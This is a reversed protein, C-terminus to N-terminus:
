LVSRKKRTQWLVIGFIVVVVVVNFGVFPVLWSPLESRSQLPESEATSMDARTAVVTPTATPPAIPASSAEPVMTAIVTAVAGPAGRSTLLRTDLVELRNATVMALNGSLRRYRNLFIDIAWSLGDPSTGTLALLARDNNWPSELLQLYGLNTGEPLRLIVDDIQQDIQNLGPIFPQPLASNIAQLLNNETPLGFAIIDYNSLMTESIPEGFSVQPYLTQGDVLAGLGASLQLLTLWDESTPTRPPVFITNSMTTTTDFPAPLYRFDLPPAPVINRPLHLISDPENIIFWTREAQDPVCRDILRLDVLLTLLNEQGPKFIAAGLDIRIPKRGSTEETLAITSVPLSNVLVTLASKQLDITQSHLFSLDLYAEETIDWNGPLSFQYDIEQLLDRSYFGIDELNQGGFIDENSRDSIEALTMDIALEKPPHSDLIKHFDSILAVEGQLGPFNAESSMARAARAVAVETLGSMMLVVEGQNWPSIFEQIVGDNDPVALGNYVFFNATPLPETFAPAPSPNESIVDANVTVTNIPGLEAEFLTAVAQVLETTLADTAQLTLNFARSETPPLMSAEWSITEAALDSQCNPQCEVLNTFKPQTSILSVTAARDLTNTVTFYYSFTQGHSILSPSQAVMDLNRQHLSIPTEVLDLVSQIAQNRAPQGLLFIHNPSAEGGPPFESLLDIDRTATINIRNNTLMGLKAAVGAAATLETSDPQDPLVFRVIDPEFSRQFFPAPYLSLDITPLRQQYNLSISSSSLILLDAKHPVECLFAADFLLRVTHVNRDPDALLSQPLPISLRLTDIEEDIRFVDLIQGNFEVTLNGFFNPFEDSTIQYYFYSLDLNLIGDSQIAWNQPLRFSYQSTDFPSSLTVDDYGLDAITFSYVSVPTIRPNLAPATTTTVLSQVTITPTPGVQLLQVPNKENFNSYNSASAIHGTSSILLIFIALGFVLGGILKIAKSPQLQRTTNPRKQFFKIINHCM